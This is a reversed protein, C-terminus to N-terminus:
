PFRHFFRLFATFTTCATTYARGRKCTRVMRAYQSIAHSYGCFMFTRWPFVKLIRLFAFFYAFSFVLAFCFFRDVFYSLPSVSKDVGVVWPVKKADLCLDGWLGEDGESDRSGQRRLVKVCEQVQYKSILLTRSDRSDRHSPAPARFVKTQLIYNTHHQQLEREQDRCYLDYQQQHKESRCWFASITATEPRRTAFTDSLYGCPGVLLPFVNTFPNYAHSNYNFIFPSQEYKNYQLHTVESKRYNGVSFEMVKRNLRYIQWYASYNPVLRTLTVCWPFVEM